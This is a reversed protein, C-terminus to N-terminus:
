LGWLGGRLSGQGLAGGLGAWVQGSLRSGEWWLFLSYLVGLNFHFHLDSLRTQSKTIGHVAAHWAERDMVLEWLRGLGMDM